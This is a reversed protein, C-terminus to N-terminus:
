QQSIRQRSYKKKEGHVSAGYNEILNVNKPDIKESAEKKKSMNPFPRASFSMESMDKKASSQDRDDEDNINILNKDSQGLNRDYIDERNESVPVFIEKAKTESKIPDMNSIIRDINMIAQVKQQDTKASESKLLNMVERELKPNIRETRPKPVPVPLPFPPAPNVPPVPNPASGILEIRPENIINVSNVLFEKLIMSIPLIKRIAKIIGRQINQEIIVQNRKFDMPEVEHYFFMPNNHADKACETYCRHIFTETTLSNYFTQGIINSVKNSYTLLIINTKIVAKVLDDLYESTNSCQKIRKTEEEIMTKNWENVNLLYKQFILLTKDKTNTKDSIIVARKYITNLGDYIYPTLIDVLIETYENKMELFIAIEM